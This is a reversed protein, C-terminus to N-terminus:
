SFGEPDDGLFKIGLTCATCAVFGRPWSQWNTDPMCGGPAPRLVMSGRTTDKYTQTESRSGRNALAFSHWARGPTTPTFPKPIGQFSSFSPTHNEPDRWKENGGFGVLKAQQLDHSMKVCFSDQHFGGSGAHSAQM